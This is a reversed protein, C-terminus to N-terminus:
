SMGTKWLLQSYARKDSSCATREEPTMQRWLPCAPGFGCYCETVAQRLAPGRETTPRATEVATVHTRM